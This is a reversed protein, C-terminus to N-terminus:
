GYYKALTRMLYQDDFSIGCRHVSEAIRATDVHYSGGRDLVNCIAPRDTTIELAAIIEQASYNRPSAVDITGAELNKHEMLGVIIRVADAV